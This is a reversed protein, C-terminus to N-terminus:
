RVGLQLKELIEAKARLGDRSADGSEIARKAPQCLGFIAPLRTLHQKEAAVSNIRRIAFRWSKGRDLLGSRRLRDFSRKLAKRRGRHDRTRGLRPPRRSATGRPM